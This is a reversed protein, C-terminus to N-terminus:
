ATDHWESEELIWHRTPFTGLRFYIGFWAPSGFMQSAARQDPNFGTLLKKIKKAAHINFEQM